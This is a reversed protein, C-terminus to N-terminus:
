PWGAGCVKLGTELEVHRSDIRAACVQAEDSAVSGWAEKRAVGVTFNLRMKAVVKM